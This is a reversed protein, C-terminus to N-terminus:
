GVSNQFIGTNRTEIKKTERWKLFRHKTRADYVISLGHMICSISHCYHMLLYTKCLIPVNERLIIMAQANQSPRQKTGKLYQEDQNEILAAPNTERAGFYGRCTLFYCLVNM